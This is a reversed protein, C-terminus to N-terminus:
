PVLDKQSNKPTCPQRRYFKTYTVCVESRISDTAWIFVAQISMCRDLTAGAVSMSVPKMTISPPEHDDELWHFNTLFIRISDWWWFEHSDVEVFRARGFAKPHQGVRHQWYSRQGGWQHSREAEIIGTWGSYFDFCLICAEIDNLCTCMSDLDGCILKGLRPKLADSSRYLDSSPRVNATTTKVVPMPDNPRVSEVPVVTKTQAFWPMQLLSAASPRSQANMELMSLLVRLCEGLPENSPYKRLLSWRKRKHHVRFSFMCILSDWWFYISRIIKIVSKTTFSFVEEDIWGGVFTYLDNGFHSAVM